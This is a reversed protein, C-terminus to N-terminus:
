QKRRFVLLGGILILTEIGSVSSCGGKSNDKKDNVDNNDNEQAQSVIITFVKSTSQGNGAATIMFNYSGSSTTVGVIQGTSTNFDLGPPLAGEIGWSVSSMNALINVRYETGVTANPLSSTTIALAGASNIAITFSTRILAKTSPTLINRLKWKTM